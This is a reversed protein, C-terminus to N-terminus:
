QLVIVPMYSTVCFFRMLKAKGRLTTFCIVWLIFLSWIPLYLASFLNPLMGVCWDCSWEINSALQYWHLKVSLIDSWSFISWSKRTGHGAAICCPSALMYNRLNITFIIKILTDHSKPTIGPRKCSPLYFMASHHFQSNMFALFIQTLATVYCICCIIHSM